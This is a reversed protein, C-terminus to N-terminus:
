LHAHSHNCWRCASSTLICIIVGVVPNIGISEDICVFLIEHDVIKNLLAINLNCLLFHNAQFWFIQEFPAVHRGASQQQLSTDNFIWSLMYTKYLNSMTMM